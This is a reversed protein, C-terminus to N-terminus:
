LNEVAKKFNDRLAPPGTLQTYTYDAPQGAALDALTRGPGFEYVRFKIDWGSHSALRLVDQFIGDNRSKYNDTVYFLGRRTDAHQALLAVCEQLAAPTDVAAHQWDSLVAVSEHVTRGMALDGDPRYVYAMDDDALQLLGEILGSTVEPLRAPDAVDLIVVVTKVPFIQFM